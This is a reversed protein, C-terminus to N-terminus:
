QQLGEFKPKCLHFLHSGIALGEDERLRPAGLVVELVKQFRIAVATLKHQKVTGISVFIGATDDAFPDLVIGTRPADGTRSGDVTAGGENLMKLIVGAYHDGSFRRSFADVHLEARQNDIVVQRPIRLPNFLANPAAM